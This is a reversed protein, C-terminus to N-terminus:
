GRPKQLIGMFTDLNELLADIIEDPRKTPARRPPPPQATVEDVGASPPSTGSAAAASAASPFSAPPEASPCAELSSAFEASAFTASSAPLELSEPPAGDPKAYRGEFM